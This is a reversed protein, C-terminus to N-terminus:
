FYITSIIQNLKLINENILGRCINTMFIVDSLVKSQDVQNDYLRQIDQRMSEVDEGDVTGFLFNFLGGFPLLSRKDRNNRPKHIHDTLYSAEIQTSTTENLVSDLYDITM